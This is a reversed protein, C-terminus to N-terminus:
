LDLAENALKDTDQNYERPVHWFRVEVGLSDLEEVFEELCAFFGWNVVNTGLSTKFGNQKWKYIWTTM